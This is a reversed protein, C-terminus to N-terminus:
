PELPTVEVAEKHLKAESMIMAKMRICEAKAEELKKDERDLAEQENQVTQAQASMNSALNEKRANLAKAAKEAYQKADQAVAVNEKFLNTTKQNKRHETLEAKMAKVIEERGGLKEMAKITEELNHQKEQWKMDEASLPTAGGDTCVQLWREAAKFTKCTILPQQLTPVPAPASLRKNKCITCSKVTDPYHVNCPPCWWAPVPGSSNTPSQQQQQQQQQNQQSQKAAPKVYNPGKNCVAKLHGKIGCNECADGNKPCEKKLHGVEGCCKCAAQDVQRKSRCMQATHGTRGCPQCVIGNTIWPCQNEHHDTANCRSCTVGKSGKGWSAGKWGKGQGKTGGWGQGQMGKGWAAYNGNKGKGKDGKGGMTLAAMAQQVQWASYM